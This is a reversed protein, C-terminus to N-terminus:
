TTVVAYDVSSGRILTLHRIVAVPWHTELVRYHHTKLHWDGKRDLTLLFQHLSSSSLAAVLCWASGEYSVHVASQLAGQLQVTGSLRKAGSSDFVLWEGAQTLVLLAEHKGVTAASVVM